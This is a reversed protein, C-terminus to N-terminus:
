GEHRNVRIITNKADELGNMYAPFLIDCFWQRGAAGADGQYQQLLGQLYSINAPSCKKGNRLLFAELDTRSFILAWPFDGERQEVAAQLDSAPLDDLDIPNSDKLGWTTTLFVDLDAETELPMQKKLPKFEIGDAFEIAMAILDDASLEDVSKHELKMYEEATADSVLCMEGKIDLADAIAEASLALGGTAGEDGQYTAFELPTSDLFIGEVSHPPRDEEEEFSYAYGLTGFPDPDPMVAYIYLIRREHDNM